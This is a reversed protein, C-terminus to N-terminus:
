KSRAIIASLNRYVQLGKQGSREPHFQFAYISGYRLSSCFEINGYRAVSLVMDSDEPKAYFSHLFYMYEGEDLSELPTGTWLDTASLYDSSSLHRPRYIQNWGIQPVKLPARPDVPNEFRVVSGSIVDLGAHKGFEYSETMLLQLGLCVGIFPKGSTAVERLPVVLDLRELAAMADGFAGVGPLVVADAALIENQEFTICAHLGVLECALKVSLLNGLGYDVIAVVPKM